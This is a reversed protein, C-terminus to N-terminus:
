NTERTQASFWMLVFWAKKRQKIQMFSQFAPLTYLISHRYDVWCFSLLYLMLIFLSGVRSWKIKVYTRRSRAPCLLNRAMMSDPTLADRYTDAGLLERAAVVVVPDTWLESMVMGIMWLLDIIIAYLPQMTSALLQKKRSDVIELMAGIQKCHHIWAFSCM